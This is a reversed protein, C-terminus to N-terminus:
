DRLLNRPAALRGDIFGLDRRLEDSLDSIRIRPVRAGHRFLRLIRSRGPFRDLATATFGAPM